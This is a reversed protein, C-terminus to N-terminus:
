TCTISSYPPSGRLYAGYDAKLTPFSCCASAPRSRQVQRALRYERACVLVPFTDNERKRIDVLLVTAIVGPQDM